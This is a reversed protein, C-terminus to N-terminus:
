FSLQFNCIMVKRFQFVQKEYFVTAQNENNGVKEVNKFM